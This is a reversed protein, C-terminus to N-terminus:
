SCTDSLCQCLELKWIVKYISILKWQVKFLCVNGIIDGYASSYYRAVKCSFASLITFLSVDSLRDLFSFLLETLWAREVSAGEVHSWVKKMDWLEQKTEYRRRARLLTRGAIFWFYRRPRFENSNTGVDEDKKKELLKM